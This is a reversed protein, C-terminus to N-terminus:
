AAEILRYVNGGGSLIYLEGDADEGFSVVNGLEGVDWEREDSAGGDRFRFSRLFGACFDSYFYHGRITPVAVGRYVYGGTISCGDSHGYELPPIELDEM